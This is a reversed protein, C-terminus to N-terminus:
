YWYLVLAIAVLPVYILILHLEFMRPLITANLHKPPNPTHFNEPWQGTESYQRLAVSVEDRRAKYNQRFNKEVSDLLWCAVAVLVALLLLNHNNIQWSWGVLAAWLTVAWTKVRAALEDYKDVQLQTMEWEKRALDYKTEQSM